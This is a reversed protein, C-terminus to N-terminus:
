PKRPPANTAEPARKAMFESRVKEAKVAAAENAAEEAKLEPDLIEVAAERRLQRIYAPALRRKQQGILMKQLRDTVDAFTVKRAPIKELLQFFLYGEENTIVESIQNTEMSFALDGYEMQDRRFTVEGDSKTIFNENYQKALATFEEGDRVRQRLEFILKHKAQIVPYPLPTSSHGTTTLLLLERVRAKEPEDFAGSNADFYKKADADTVKIGLQRTLSAQATEERFLMLRLEEPTMHTEKLRREFELKGLTQVIKTVNEDNKQNGEAKEQEIAKDMVLRIEILHILAHFGADPPLEASPNKARATALVQDIERRRIEFGNGRAVVADASRATSDFNTPVSQARARSPAIFAITLSCLILLKM